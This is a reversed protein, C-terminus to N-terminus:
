KLGRKLFLERFVTWISGIKAVPRMAFNSADITKYTGWLSMEDDDDDPVDFEDMYEHAVQIYAFYQCIPLIEKELIAKCKLNDSGWNDGDSAQAAYINWQDTPYRDKIVKMMEELATSVITGGSERDYFFVEESVEQADTTHRIFVLDIKKYHRSLFYYLLMYFRKAINKEFEGMSGSVDMLCVMVASTSPLPQSAFNNYRVDMEDIFPVRRQKGRLEEIQEELAKRKEYFGTIGFQDDDLQLLRLQEELEEIEEESPRHLAIRRGLSRKVSQGININAPNGSRTFGTRQPKFDELAMLNKKVMDPLELDQFFMELYEERTVQFQFYDELDGEDSAGKGNGSGQGSYQKEILDDEEYQDNGNMIYDHVGKSGSHVFVPESIDKVPIEVVDGDLIERINRTGDLNKNISKKIARQSRQLFRKRNVVSKESLNKRRDIIVTM